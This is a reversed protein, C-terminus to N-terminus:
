IEIIPAFHKWQAITTEKLHARLLSRWQEETLPSDPNMVPWTRESTWMGRHLYIEPRGATAVWVRLMLSNAHTSSDAQFIITGDPVYVRLDAYSWKGNKRSSSTETRPRFAKGDPHYCTLKHMERNANPGDRWEFMVEAM